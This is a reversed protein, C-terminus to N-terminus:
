AGGYKVISNDPDSAWFIKFGLIAYWAIMKDRGVDKVEYRIEEPIVIAEVVTDAGFIYAEGWAASIGQANSLAHNSRSFRTQYYSGIEGNVPYKTYQWIAQLKDHLGRAAQTSLIGHYFGGSFKAAKMTAYLYDVMNKAHFDDFSVSCTQTPTGDTYINYATASSGVYVIKTSAFEAEVTTDMVEVMDNKIIRNIKQSEDFQSLAELKGTYGHGNGYETVSLTGKYPTHSRRPMTATEVLTGGATSINGWKDFNVTDGKSKGFEEQVDAYQRFVMEAQAAHRTTRSLKPNALYSGQSVWNSSVAM